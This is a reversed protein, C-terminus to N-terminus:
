REVEVPDGSVPKDLAVASLCGLLPEFDVLVLPRGTAAAPEPEALAAWTGTNPRGPAATHVGSYHGPILEPDLGAGCVIAEPERGDLIGDLERALAGPLARPDLGARQALTTATEPGDAGPEGAELVVAAASDRVPVTEEPPRTDYPLTSAELVVLLVRRLGAGRVLDGAIRLATYPSATGQDSVAFALRASPLATSLAFAPSTSGLEPTSHAVLIGDVHGLPGLADLMARSMSAYSNCLATYPDFDPRLAVGAFAAIDRM